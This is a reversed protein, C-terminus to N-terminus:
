KESPLSWDFFNKIPHGLRKEVEKLFNEDNEDGGDKVIKGLVKDFVETEESNSDFLKSEKITKHQTPCHSLWYERLKEGNGGTSELLDILVKSQEYALLEDKTYSRMGGKAWGSIKQELSPLKKKIFDKLDELVLYGGLNDKETHTDIGKLLFPSVEEALGVSKLKEFLEKPKINNKDM